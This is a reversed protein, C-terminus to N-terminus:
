KGLSQTIGMKYARLELAHPTTDTSSAAIISQPFQGEETSAFTFNGSVLSSILLLFMFLSVATFHGLYRPTDERV